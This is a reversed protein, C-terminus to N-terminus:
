LAKYTDRLVNKQVKGMTNRPLQDIIHVRKPVKFNAIRSKLEAQMASADLSAGDKPVVVAVVAEGFDPHPVGIVASESVGPMDDILTEIEKPYVNYGGSIILDKSRGVISLYDDPATRGASEGGWRGVDGTKFWGDETFEERTKEPMRWYGSFVNPGRVQVNGIEGAALAKGADDVVRVQVGPLARGVTGALREGLAPDYPNSTLMVTESMGYRELIPHGSREKFDSFTEALLPASGSIFLRMNACVDRNFRPDALLRVYYTPVGMMVTSQPLYHLAQDADLKPLWIMRAGALLAGHSAVFLGHVHFIPLMHLLVDDERWGWYEHLTRANAALNGHSLMAGKSRGTTGSTYLIAALDDPKRQVTKFTQPLSGAAELLTGTRDEDLTFVHPCGAKDAARKVWDLNKSACVVVSPEANGLFYEIESERYATNLPLYVLGARLTALYLLLAEPSKEVQVAVRAGDPLNLSQLLNALCATARDIDDWTYQLDPTELAVKSRDKPFGGQLVAYLNANSM